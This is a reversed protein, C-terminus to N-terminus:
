ASLCTVLTDFVMMTACGAAGAYVANSLFGDCHVDVLQESHRKELKINIEIHNNIFYM